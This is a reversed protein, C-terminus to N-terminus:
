AQGWTSLVWSATAKVQEEFPTASVGFTARYKADEVRYPEEWQYRMEKLEGMAPVFLGLMTVLWSPITTVRLDRQLPVALAKAWANMSRAELTPLNWVQGLAKDEGGLRVLAEVIDPAYTFAHPLSPDGMCEGASGKLVRRFFREGLHADVIGPGVFDSARGITIRAEGKAHAELYQAAIRKRLEGKRSCPAQVSDERMPAGGTRGFMYLNDLVVLRAGSTRAAHLVGATMPPLETTWRHYAPNMVHYLVHAGKALQEASSLDSLNGAVVRIGEAGGKSADRRVTVVEHGAAHLRRALSKGIQGTGLVVHTEKSQSMFDESRQSKCPHMSIGLFVLYVQM